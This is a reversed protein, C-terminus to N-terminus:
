VQHGEKTLWQGKIKGTPPCRAQKVKDVEVEDVKEGELLRPSFRAREYHELFLSFFLPEEFHNEPWPQIHSLRLYGRALAEHAMRIDVFFEGSRAKDLLFDAIM